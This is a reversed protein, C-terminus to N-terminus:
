CLRPLSATLGRTDPSRMKIVRSSLDLFGLPYLPCTGAPPKSTAGWNRSSGPIGRQCLPVPPLVPATRRLRVPPEPHGRSERKKGGGHDFIRRLLLPPWPTSPATRPRSAAHGRCLTARRPVNQIGAGRKWSSLSRLFSLSPRHSKPGRGWPSCL